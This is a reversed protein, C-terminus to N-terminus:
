KCKNYLQFFCAFREEGCKINKNCIFQYKQCIKGWLNKECEDLCSRVEVPETREARFQKWRHCEGYHHLARVRGGPMGHWHQLQLQAHLSRHRGNVGGDSRRQARTKGAAAAACLEPYRSGCLLLPWTIVGLMKGLCPFLKVLCFRMFLSSSDVSHRILQKYM